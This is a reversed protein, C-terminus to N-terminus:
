DTSPNAAPDSTVKMVMLVKDDENMSATSYSAVESLVADVISPASKERHKRVCEALRKGGYEENSEDAIDLIGDTCCM